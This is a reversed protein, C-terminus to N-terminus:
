RINRARANVTHVATVAAQDRILRGEYTWSENVQCHGEPQGQALRFAEQPRDQRQHTEIECGGVVGREGSSTLRERNFEAADWRSSGDMEDDVARSQRNHAFAFPSRHVVTSAAVSAPLLQMNPTGEAVETM